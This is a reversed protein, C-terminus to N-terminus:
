IILNMRTKNLFYVGVPIYFFASRMPEAINTIERLRVADKETTLVYKIPSKLDNFASSINRIDNENFSYHDPFTLHIIESISKLLYEKLPLPNAIGTVLVVGCGSCQSLDLHVSKKNNNGFVPVPDKYSFTTFYLNQYPAKDIEKVILRRQIPSINEPSKTILIIDARRM